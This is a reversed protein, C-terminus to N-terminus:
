LVEPALVPERTASDWVAEVTLTSLDFRALIGGVPETGSMFMAEICRHEACAGSETGTLIAIVHVDEFAGVRSRVRSDQLLKEEAEAIEEALLRPQFAEVTVSAVRAELLDVVPWVVDNAGYRYIHVDALRPNEGALVRAKDVHLAAGIARHRGDALLRAVDPDALALEIARAQEEDTLPDLPLAGTGATAMNARSELCGAALAAASAILIVSLTTLKPSLIVDGGTGAIPRSRSIGM